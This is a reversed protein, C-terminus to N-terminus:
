EKKLSFGMKNDCILLLYEHLCAKAPMMTHRMKVTTVEYKLKGTTNWDFAWHTNCTGIFAFWLRNM